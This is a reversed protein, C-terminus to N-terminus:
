IKFNASWLHVQVPTPQQNMSYQPLLEPTAQFRSIKDAIINPKGEVHKAVFLINHSSLKLVLPHVLNMITKDKSSQKNIIEVTAKNDCLFIVSSNAMLHGFM